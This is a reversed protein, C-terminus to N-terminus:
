ILIKHIIDKDNKDYFKFIFGTQKIIFLSLKFHM